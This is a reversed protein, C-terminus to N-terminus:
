RKHHRRHHHRESTSDGDDDGEEEVPAPTYTCAAGSGDAMEVALCATEDDLDSIAACADHDDAVSTSATEVCSPGDASPTPPPPDICGSSSGDCFGSYVLNQEACAAAGCQKCTGPHVGMCGDIFRSNGCNQCTQCAGLNLTKDCKKVGSCSNDCCHAGHGDINEVYTRPTAFVGQDHAGLPWIGADIEPQLAEENPHTYVNLEPCEPDRGPQCDHGNNFDIPEGSGYSSCLGGNGNGGANQWAVETNEGRNTVGNPIDDAPADAGYVGTWLDSNDPDNRSVAWWPEPCGFIHVGMLGMYYDTRHGSGYWHVRLIQVRWHRAPAISDPIYVVTGPNPCQGASEPLAAYSVHNYSAGGNYSVTIQIVAAGRYSIENQNYITFQTVKTNSRVDFNVYPQHNVGSSQALWDANPNSFCMNTNDSNLRDTNRSSHYTSSASATYALKVQNSRRCAGDRTPNYWEDSHQTNISTVKAWGEMDGSAAQCRFGGGGNSGYGRGPPVVCNGSRTGTKLPCRSTGQAASSPLGSGYVLYCSQGCNDREYWAWYSWCPRDYCVRVDECSIEEGEGSCEEEWQCRQCTM